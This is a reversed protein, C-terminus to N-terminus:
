DGKINRGVLEDLTCEFVDAIDICSYINPISHGLEWNNVTNRFSGIKEALEEITWGKANRKERLIQGFTKM